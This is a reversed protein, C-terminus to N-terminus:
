VTVNNEVSPVTEALPAVLEKSMIEEEQGKPDIASKETKIFDWFRKMKHRRWM